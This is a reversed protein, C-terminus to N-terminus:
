PSAQSGVAHNEIRVNHGNAWTPASVGLSVSADNAYGHSLLVRAGSLIHVGLLILVLPLAIHGNRRLRDGLVRSSVLRYGLWCWVATFLAFL